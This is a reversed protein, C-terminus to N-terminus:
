PTDKLVANILDAFYIRVLDSEEHLVPLQDPLNSSLTWEDNRIGPRPTPTPSPSVQQVAARAIPRARTRAAAPRPLPPGQKSVRPASPKM